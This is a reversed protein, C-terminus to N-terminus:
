WYKHNYEQSYLAFRSLHLTERGHKFLALCRFTNSSWFSDNV